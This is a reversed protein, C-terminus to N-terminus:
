RRTVRVLMGMGQHDLYHVEELRLRRTQHLQESVLQSTQDNQSGVATHRWAKVEIELSDQGHDLGVIAEVPYHNGIPEGAQVAVKLDGGAPQTWAKHMLIQYGQAELKDAERDLRHQTEDLSRIDTRTTQELAIAEDAWQADPTRDGTLAGSPQTFLITEIQYNSVAQAQAAAALSTLALLAVLQLPRIIPNM